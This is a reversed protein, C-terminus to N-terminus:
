ARTRVDWAVTTRVKDQLKLLDKELLRGHDERSNCDKPLELKRGRAPKPNPKMYHAVRNRNRNMLKAIQVVTPKRKVEATRLSFVRHFLLPM